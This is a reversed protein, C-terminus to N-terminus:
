AQSQSMYGGGAGAPATLECAGFVGGYLPSVANRDKVTSTPVCPCIILAVIADARLGGLLM